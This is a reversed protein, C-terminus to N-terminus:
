RASQVRLTAAISFFFFFWLASHNPRERGCTTYMHQSRSSSNAPLPWARDLIRPGTTVTAAQAWGVCARFFEPWIKWDDKEGNVVCEALLKCLSPMGSFARPLTLKSSRFLVRNLCIRASPLSSQLLDLPLMSTILEWASVVAALSSADAELPLMSSFLESSSSSSQITKPLGSGGAPFDSSPCVPWAGFSALECWTNSSDDFNLWDLTSASAFWRDDSWDEDPEFDPWSGFSSTSTSFVMVLLPMSELLLHLPFFFLASLSLSFASTLFGSSTFPTASDTVLLGPCDDAIATEVSELSIDYMTHLQIASVSSYVALTRLLASRISTIIKNQKTQRYKKREHRRFVVMYKDDIYSEHSTSQISTIFIIIKPKTQRYKKREHTRFGVM